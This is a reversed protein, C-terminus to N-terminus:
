CPACGARDWSPRWPLLRVKRGVCCINFYDIGYAQASCAREALPNLRMTLCESYVIYVTHLHTLLRGPPELLPGPPELSAGSGGLLHARGCAQAQRMHEWIEYVITVTCLTMVGSAV